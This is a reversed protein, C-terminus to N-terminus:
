KRPEFEFGVRGDRGLKLYAAFSRKTKTSIFRLLLDTKGLQVLKIAQTRLIDQQLITKGFRFACQELPVNSCTYANAYEFVQGTQCVPCAGLPESNVPAAAEGNM